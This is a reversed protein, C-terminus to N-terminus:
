PVPGSHFTLLDVQVLWGDADMIDQTPIWVVRASTMGTAPTSYLWDRALVSATFSTDTLTTVRGGITDWVDSFVRKVQIFELLDTRSASSEIQVSLQPLPTFIVFGSASLHGTSVTEDLLIQVRDDDSENLSTPAGGIMLGLDVEYHFPSYSEFNQTARRFPTRFTQVPLGTFVAEFFCNGSELDALHLPSVSYENALVTGIDGADQWTESGGLEAIVAGPNQPTGQIIRSHQVDNRVKGKKSAGVYIKRGDRHIMVGVGGELVAEAEGVLELILGLITDGASVHIGMQYNSWFGIDQPGTKSVTVAFLGDGSSGHPSVGFYILIEHGNLGPRARFFHSYSQPVGKPPDNPAIPVVHQVTCALNLLDTHEPPLRDIQFVKLPSTWFAGPLDITTNLPTDIGIGVTVQIFFRPVEVKYSEVIAARASVAVLAVLVAFFRLM